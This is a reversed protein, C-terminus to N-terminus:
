PENEGERVHVTGSLRTDRSSSGILIEFDGAELKWANSEVDFFALQDFGLELEVDRSEGAELSVKRFAALEREPQEVSAEVDRVYVQAM